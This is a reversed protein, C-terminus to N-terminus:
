NDKTKSGLLTKTLFATMKNELPCLFNLSDFMFQRADNIEIASLYYLGNVDLIIKFVGFVDLKPKIYTRYLGGRGLKPHLEDNNM